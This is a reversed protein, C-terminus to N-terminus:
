LKPVPLTNPAGAAPLGFPLIIVDLGTVFPETVAPPATVLQAM